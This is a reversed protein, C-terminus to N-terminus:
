HTMASFRNLISRHKKKLIKPVNFKYQQINNNPMLLLKAVQIMQMYSESINTTAWLEFNIMYALPKLTLLSVSHFEINFDM